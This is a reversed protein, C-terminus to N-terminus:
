YEPLEAACSCAAIGICGTDNKVASLKLYFFSQIMGTTKKKTSILLTSSMQTHERTFLIDM